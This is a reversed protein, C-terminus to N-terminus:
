LLKIKLLRSFDELEEIKLLKSVFLYVLLGIISTISFLILLPITRSTDLLTNDFLRFLTWTISSMFISAITIKAIKLYFVKWSHGDVRRYYLYFLGLCQVLNGLTASIALGVIGLQTFKIFYYSTSINTLLSFFSVKLPTRTDHMAYFSRNLIQIIAQCVIAPTLYALTEATILTASWPFHKAGFAIRVIPLREVLILITIPIALFLSQLITKNVTERFETIQNKAINKSLIPLSAQGITTGFIRSPLYMLQLALNLLSLSGAALTSAFFLTITSEIEALGLSLSRPIMLRVIERVGPHKIDVYTSPKFGLRTALPFQVLLHFLAGTVAGVAVGYIGLVPTLTYISLIIFVNYVIPSLAPIFFLQHVQIIGTFFNSVL